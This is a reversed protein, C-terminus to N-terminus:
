ASSGATSYDEIVFELAFRRGLEAPQTVIEATRDTLWVPEGDDGRVNKGILVRMSSVIGDRFRVRVRAPRAAVNIGEALREGRSPLMDQVEAAMEAVLAWSGSGAGDLSTDAIPREIRIRRDLRLPKM